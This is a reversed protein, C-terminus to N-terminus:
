VPSKNQNTFEGYRKSMLTIKYILSYQFLLGKVAYPLVVRASSSVKRVCSTNRQMPPLSEEHKPSIHPLPPFFVVKDTHKLGKHKQIGHPSFSDETVHEKQSLGALPTTRKIGSTTTTLFKFSSNM